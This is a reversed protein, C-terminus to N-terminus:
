CKRTIMASYNRVLSEGQKQKAGATVVIIDCQGAEKHTGARVSTTSGGREYSADSLDQVQANRLQENPDVLLVESAVPNLVLTYAITSGVEGAGLIAIRSLPSPNSMINQM